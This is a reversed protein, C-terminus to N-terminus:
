GAPEIVTVEGRLYNGVYVTHSDPDVALGNPDDVPITATVTRTNGDIVSMTRDERHSVYVTHGGPDVAVEQPKKNVPITGTVTRTNTDIVSVTDGLHNAVYVNHSIPDVAMGLPREGVPITATVRHANADVVSVTDDGGNAVYVTHSGPDVVVADPDGGVPITTIVSRTKPDIVSVSGATRHTVYVLHTDPNVAVADAPWRVRLNAIVKRAASDIVSVLPSAGNRYIANTTYVMRTHPDVALRYPIKRELFHRITATVTRSVPNIMLVSRAAIVYVTHSLPDVAIERPQAGVPITAAITPPVPVASPRPESAVATPTAAGQAVVLKFHDFTRVPRRLRDLADGVLPTRAANGILYIANLDQPTLGAEAITDELQTITADISDAILAEYEGRTVLKPEAVGPLDFNVSKATTLQEKLLRVRAQLRLRKGAVEPDDPPPVMPSLQDWLQANVPAIYREGLYNLLLLDFECGGLLDDGGSKVVEYGDATARVVATDFTGGGLDYVGFCDGPQPPHRLAFWHAAAVPEEVFEPEGIGDLAAEAAAAAFAAELVVRRSAKWSAPHTLVVREPAVQNHQLLAESLVTGLVAAILEAPEFEHAGLRMRAQGVRRKPTPEYADLGFEALNDAAAGVVLERGRAFVASSLTPSGGAMMMLPEAVGGDHAVAAATASTGFDIALWWGM